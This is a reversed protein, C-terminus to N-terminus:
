RRAEGVAIVPVRRQPAHRRQQSRTEPSGSRSVPEPGPLRSVMPGMAVMSLVMGLKGRAKAPIHPDEARFADHRACVGMEIAVVIDLDLQRVHNGRQRQFARRECSCPGVEDHERLRTV